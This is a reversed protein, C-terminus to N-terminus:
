YKYVRKSVHKKLFNYLSCYLSCGTIFLPILTNHLYFTSGFDSLDFQEMDNDSKDDEWTNKTPIIIGFM